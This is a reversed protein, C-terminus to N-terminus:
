HEKRRNNLEREEDDVAVEDLERALRTAWEVVLDGDLVRDIRVGIAHMTKINATAAAAIARWSAALARVHDRQAPTV